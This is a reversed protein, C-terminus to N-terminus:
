ISAPVQPDPPPSEPSPKQGKSLAGQQECYPYQFTRTLMTKDTIELQEIHFRDKKSQKIQGKDTKRQNGKCGVHVLM